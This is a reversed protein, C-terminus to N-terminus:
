ILGASLLIQKCRLTALLPNYPNTADLMYIRFEECTSRSMTHIHAHSNRYKSAVMSVQIAVKGLFEQETADGTTIPFSTKSTIAAICNNANNALLGSIGGLELGKLRGTRATGTKTYDTMESMNVDKLRSRFLGTENIYGQVTVCQGASSSGPRWLNREVRIADIFTRNLEIEVAKWLGIGCIAYDLWPFDANQLHKWLLEASMLSERTAQELLSEMPRVIPPLEASTTNLRQVVHQSQELLFNDFESHLEQRISLLEEPSDATEELAAWRELFPRRYEDIRHVTEELIVQIRELQVNVQRFGERQESQLADVKNNLLEMKEQMTRLIVEIQDPYETRFAAQRKPLQQQHFFLAEERRQFRAQRYNPGIFERAFAALWEPPKSQGPLFNILRKLNWLHLDQLDRMRVLNFIGFLNNFFGPWEAPDMEGMHITLADDRKINEFIVVAPLHEQSIDFYRAAQIVASQDYAINAESNALFRKWYERNQATEQWDAPPQVIAFFMCGQGSVQDLHYFNEQFFSSFRANEETFLFFVYYPFQGKLQEWNDLVYSISNVPHGM